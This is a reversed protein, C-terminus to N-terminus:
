AHLSVIKQSITAHKCYTTLLNNTVEWRTTICRHPVDLKCCSFERIASGKGLEYGCVRVEGFCFRWEDLFWVLGTKGIYMQILILFCDQCLCSTFNKKM